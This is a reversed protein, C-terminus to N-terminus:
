LWLVILIRRGAGPSRLRSPWWALESMATGPAKQSEPVVDSDEIMMAEKWGQPLGFPGPWKQM